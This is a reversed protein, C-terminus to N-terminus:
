VGCRVWLIRAKKFLTMLEKGARLLELISIMFAILPTKSTRKCVQIISVYYILTTKEKTRISQNRIIPEYSFIFLHTKEKM